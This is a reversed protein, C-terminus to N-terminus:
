EKCRGDTYELELMAEIKSIRDRMFKLERSIIDVERCGYIEALERINAISPVCMGHEYKCVAAASIGLRHAVDRQTLGANRRYERLSQM